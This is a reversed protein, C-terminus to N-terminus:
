KIFADNNFSSCHTIESIFQRASVIVFAVPRIYVSFVNGLGGWAQFVITVLRVESNFADDGNSCHWFHARKGLPIIIGITIRDTDIQWVSYLSISWAISFRWPDKGRISPQQSLRHGVDGRVSHRFCKTSMLNRDIQQYTAPGQILPPILIYKHLSSKNWGQNSKLDIVTMTAVNVIDWEVRQRKGVLQSKVYWSLTYAIWFTVGCCRTPIETYDVESVRPSM